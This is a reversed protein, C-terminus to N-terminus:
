DFRGDSSTQKFVYNANKLSDTLVNKDLAYKVYLTLTDIKEPRDLRNVAYLECIDSEAKLSGESIMNVSTFKCSKSKM